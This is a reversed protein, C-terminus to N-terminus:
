RPRRRLMGLALLGSAFLGVAAPEPVASPVLTATFTGTSFVEIGPLAADYVPHGATSLATDLQIQEPAHAVGIGVSPLSGPEIIFGGADLLPGISFLENDTAPGGSGAPAIGAIPFGDITGTIGTITYFTGTLATTTLTGSAINDGNGGVGSYTFDWLLSAHAPATGLLLAVSARAAYSKAARRALAAASHITKCMPAIEQTPNFTRSSRV